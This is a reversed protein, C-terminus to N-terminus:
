AVFEGPECLCQGLVVVSLGGVRKSQYQQRARALGLHKGRCPTLKIKAHAGPRLRASGRLLFGVMADRHARRCPLKEGLDALPCFRCFKNKGTGARGSMAGVEFSIPRLYALSSANNPQSNVIQSM